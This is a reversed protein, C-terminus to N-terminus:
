MFGHKILSSFQPQYNTVHLRTYVSVQIQGNNKRGDHYFKFDYFARFLVTKASLYFLLRGTYQVGYQEASLAVTAVNRYSCGNGRHVEGL